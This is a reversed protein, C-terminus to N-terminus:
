WLQRYNLNGEYFEESGGTQVNGQPAAREPTQLATSTKLAKRWRQTRQAQEGNSTSLRGIRGHAKSGELTKEQLDREMFGRSKM